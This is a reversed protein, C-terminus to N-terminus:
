KKILTEWVPNVDNEIYKKLKKIIKLADKKGLDYVNQLKERDREIVKIDIKKSPRIVFIEQKKELDIIHEITENYNNHRNIMTNILNPYKKYKRKIVKIKNPSLEQKRYSMPQTLVVIIKEYGLSACKDIPIADSIGGDLYKKNNINVFKSVLPMASSARLYEMDKIPNKIKKYETCGTEVNTITAYYDKNNKIFTENDFIDYKNTVKYYAFNKNVVNGTFFLSSKSIYRIDKCFRKSYRIVRGRQNSFYNVGFLAGASTGVIGDINIDNDMFVDLVGATYMGRMAGGELVLGIKTM